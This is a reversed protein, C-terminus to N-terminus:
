DIEVSDEFRTSSQNRARMINKLCESGNSVVIVKKSGTSVLSIYNQDKKISDNKILEKCTNQLYKRQQENLNLAPISKCREFQFSTEQIIM